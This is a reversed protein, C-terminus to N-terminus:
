TACAQRVSRPGDDHKASAGGFDWADRVKRCPRSGRGAGGGGCLMQKPEGGSFAPTSREEMPGEIHRRHRNVKRRCCGRAGLIRKWLEEM